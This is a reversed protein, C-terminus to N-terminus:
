GFPKRDGGGVRHFRFWKAPKFCFMDPRRRPDFPSYYADSFDVAWVEAFGLQEFDPQYTAKVLSQRLEFLPPNTSHFMLAIPFKFLGRRSYSEEKKLAIGYAEEVYSYADDTGRIESLEIGFPKGELGIIYDPSGEVRVANGEWEDTLRCGTIIPFSELVQDLVMDEVERKGAEKDSYSAM